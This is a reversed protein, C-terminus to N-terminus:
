TPLGMAKLNYLSLGLAEFPDTPPMDCTDQEVIAYEAGAAEAAKNIREWPLNGYGVPCYKLGGNFFTGDKYHLLPCRGAVKKIWAAPDGGGAQIWYTDIEFCVRPDTDEILVQLGTRDGTEPGFRELEFHHNHYSFTMDAAALKLAAQSAMDVFAVFGAGSRMDGPLGGIGVHRCGYTRHQAICADTNNLIDGIGVHTAVIELGEGDCIRRLEADDIPGVASTQVARYGMGAVRKLTAAIDAPTKLHDRLTYLQAAIRPLAM